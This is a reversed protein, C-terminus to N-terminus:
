VKKINYGASKLMRNMVSFGIGKEPLAAVLIVDVHDRDAKRLEAFFNKAAKRGDSEFILTKVKQGMSEREMREEDIAGEVDDPAGEFIIMKARPAYHRYKQGPSRPKKGDTESPEPKVNLMPDTLIERGLANELEERTIIGPRLIMPIDGTMDIVTSEIGVSCPGGDIIAEIKGNLDDLVDRATTPSPRGSINASPAAVPCGSRRILERAARSEPLRIGVTPQGGRTVDPIRDSSVTIMTMPGPWFRDMLIEMEPTVRVTLPGIEEKEAIHVISPNDSPRQKVEYIRAVADPDLANAGLGYVTETPFAVLGGNAIIAAARDLDDSNETLLKTEMM